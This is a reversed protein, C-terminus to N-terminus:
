VLVHLRHLWSRCSDECFISEQGKKSASADVIVDECISCVPKEIDLSTKVPQLLKTAGKGKKPPM